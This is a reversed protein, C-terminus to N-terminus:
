VLTWGSDALARARPVPSLPPPPTEVAEKTHTPGRGTLSLIKGPESCVASCLGGSSCHAWSPLQPSVTPEAKMWM